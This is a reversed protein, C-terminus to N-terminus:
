DITRRFTLRFNYTGTNGFSGTEPHPDYYYDLLFSGGVFWKKGLSKLIDSGVTLLPAWDTQREKLMSMFSGDSDYLPINSAVITRVSYGAGGCIDWLWTDNKIFALRLSASTYVCKYSMKMNVSSLNRFGGDLEWYWRGKMHKVHGLEINFHGTYIGRFNERAGIVYGLKFAIQDRETSNSQGALVSGGTFILLAAMAAIIKLRLSHMMIKDWNLIFLHASWIYIATIM